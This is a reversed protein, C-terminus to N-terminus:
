PVGADDLIRTMRDAFDAYWPDDQPSGAHILANDQDPALLGEGRGGSGLILVCYPAPPPSEMSAEALAAARATMSRMADSVVAAVDRPAVQEALLSEALEPLAERVKALAAADAAVTVEDGLALATGARQKLLARATVVGVARGGGDAVVLHRIGLRDMRGIARYVMTDPPLSEVPTMMFDAVPRDLAAAGHRAMAILVDRETLIGAAHEPAAGNM